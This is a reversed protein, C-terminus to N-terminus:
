PAVQKLKEHLAAAREELTGLAVSGALNLTQAPKGEAYHLFLEAWRPNGKGKMAREYCKAALAQAKTCRQKPHIEAALEKCAQSFKATAPRGQLNGSEGPRFQTARGAEVLSTNAASKNIQKKV